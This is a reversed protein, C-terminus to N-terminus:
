MQNDNGQENEEEMQRVTVTVGPKEGYIKRCECNVIQSDDYYAAGNLSDAIIKIINDADPKKIPKIQGDLMMATRRKGASKPIAFVATIKLGLETGKPFFVGRCQRKFELRVLEEYAVTKDPTYTRVYSGSRAFRPRQKGTPEGPITFEAIM